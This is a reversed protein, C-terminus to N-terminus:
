KWAQPNLAVFAPSRRRLPSCPGCFAAPEADPLQAHGRRRDWRDLRQDPREIQGLSHSEGFLREGHSIGVINPLEHRGFEAERASNAQM